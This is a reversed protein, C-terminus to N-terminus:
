APFSALTTYVPGDPTLTSQVLEFADVTFKLPEPALRAVAKLFAQKDQVSKVRCLTLHPKFRDDKAFLTALADDISAQLARVPEEPALSVWVVNVHQENPFVGTGALSAEFPKFSVSALREKVRGVKDEAVEGLFKLTLHFSKAPVLRATASPIRGQLARLHAQVAAPLQLAIFLRM